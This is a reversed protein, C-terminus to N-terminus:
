ENKKFGSTPAWQYIDGKRRFGLTRPPDITTPRPRELPRRDSEGMTM